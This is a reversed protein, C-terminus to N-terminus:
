SAMVVVGVFAGAAAVATSPLMNPKPLLLALVLRLLFIDGEDDDDTAPLDLFAAAGRRFAAELTGSAGEGGGAVLTRELFPFFFFSFPVARELGRVLKAEVELVPAAPGPTPAPAPAPALPLVLTLLDM